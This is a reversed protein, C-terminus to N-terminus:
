IKRPTILVKDVRRADMDVVEFRTGYWVVTDSARPVRGLREMVFGALTRYNGREEAPIQGIAFRQALEEFEVAGDVLWTGDPRAVIKPDPDDGLDPVEGVVEELVEDLTIVGEVGGFEDLVVAIRQRAQKFRELLRLVAMSGPVFLPAEADAVPDTAEGSLARALLRQPRLVGVVEDLSGRCLLFAETGPRALRAVIGPIGEDLDVWDVDPRPVMLDRVYRDGLRFVGELMEHEAVHVVGSRRGEAIMSRIEEETVRTGKAEHVRLLRLMATTTATLVSVLPAALRALVQMPAAVVAAIREPAQMAIRKPVLEGIVLSAFSVAGVVVAFAIARSFPVLAPIQGLREDIQAAITAGGYAGALVGILTIGIQV